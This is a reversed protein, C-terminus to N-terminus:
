DGREVAAADTHRVHLRDAPLGVAGGVIEALATRLRPGMSSAATDVTFRGDPRADVRATEFPGLGTKEVYMALGIGRRIGRAALARQEARAADYGLRELLSAFLAPFDGSDYVTPVGFSVTGCDYPMDAAARLTPRRSEAPDLGLRAAAVDM